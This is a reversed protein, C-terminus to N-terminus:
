YEVRRQLLRLQVITVALVMVFLVVVIASAYGLEAPLSSFGRSYTYLVLSITSDLPGGRGQDSMNQVQTFVQLSSIVGLVLLFILTPNLLPFTIHRLRQWRGAGDMAAAEYYVEPITQLGTLSILVQFGLTYWVNTAIIAYIAQEPDGLFHQAPLGLGQLVDNFLGTPSSYMWRWVWSVAALSTVYPVFYLVRYIGRFRKVQNLGLAVALGLVLSIPVGILVYIWTNTLARHFTEDTLLAQYNGLGVFPHREALPDWRHASVVFAFLAPGIRILLFFLLPLALFGYAVLWRRQRLSLRIGTPRM